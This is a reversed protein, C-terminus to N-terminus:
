RLGEMGPPMTVAWARPERKPWPDELQLGLRLKVLRAVRESVPRSGVLMRSIATQNNAGPGLLTRAAETAGWGLIGLAERLEGPTGWREGRSMTHYHLGHRAIWRMALGAEATLPARGAERGEITVVSVGLVRAVTQPSGVGERLKAYAAPTLDSPHAARRSM